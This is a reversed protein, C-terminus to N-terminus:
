ISYKSATEKHKQEQKSLEHGKHYTRQTFNWLGWSSHLSFHFVKPLSFHKQLQGIMLHIFVIEM